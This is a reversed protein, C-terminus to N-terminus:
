ADSPAAHCSQRTGTDYQSQRCDGREGQKGGEALRDSQRVRKRRETQVERCCRRANRQGAEPHSARRGDRTEKESEEVHQAAMMGHARDHRWAVAEPELDHGEVREIADIIALAHQGLYIPMRWVDDEQLLLHDFLLPDVVPELVTIGELDVALADALAVRCDERAMGPDAGLGLPDAAIAGRERNRAEAFLQLAQRDRGHM